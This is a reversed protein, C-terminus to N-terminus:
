RSLTSRACAGATGWVRKAPDPQNLLKGIFSKRSPGLLIPRGLTRFRPTNAIIELNQQATKSFGIGPDLIFREPAIGAKQARELIQRFSTDEADLRSQLTRPSTALTEAVRELTCEGASLLSRVRDEVRRATSTERGSQSAVM